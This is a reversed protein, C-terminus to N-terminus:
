PKFFSFTRHSTSATGRANINHRKEQLLTSTPTPGYDHGPMVVTDGPLEMVRRLSAGLTTRHSYDFDTRGSDRVFLTDGTFLRGHGYYCVGGPTHGPTHMVQLRIQKGVHITDGDKLVVDVQGKFYPIDAQHMSVLAGTEQRLYSAMDTHDYHFHTLLIHELVLGHKDLEALILDADAGPDIVAAKWTDRCSLIYCFNEMTGVKLQNVWM